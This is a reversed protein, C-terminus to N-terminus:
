LCNVIIPRNSDLMTDALNLDRYKNCLTPTKLGWFNFQVEAQCGRGASHTHLFSPPLALHLWVVSKFTEEGQCKEEKTNSSSKKM